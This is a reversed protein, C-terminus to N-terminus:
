PTHAHSLRRMIAGLDHRISPDRGFLWPSLPPAEGSRPAITSQPPKPGRPFGPDNAPDSQVSIPLPGPADFPHSGNTVWVPNTIAYATHPLNESPTASGLGPGLVDMGGALTNVAETIQFPSVEFPRVIPFMSRYGIVEVVFWSDIPQGSADEALAVDFALMLPESALDRSEDIVTQEIIAGNRIVNLRSVGVWPAASLSVALRVSGPTDTAITQGMAGREPDDVYLEVMPGNTAIARGSRLGRVLDLEEIERVDDAGAYVMTRFFGAESNANHSDSTGVAVFRHGANLLNYWDDVVGPFVAQDDDDTVITGAPPLGPPADPPLTEPTRWHHIDRFLKGNVVELLDFDLSFTTQGGPGLFAPGSPSLFIDALGGPLQDMTFTDRKYQGFYGLVPARPHNVQILTEDRGYEGLDRLRAFIEAPPRDSWAVAGRNVQALDYRLPYGNFHGSEITTVELGVSSVMWDALGAEAIAPGFDTIFNHDSSVAWEVGEASVSRVRLDLGMASDHSNSSHLHMDAAIFGTTDVVRRLTHSLTVTRGPVLEVLDVDTDYEPGRSSHVEYIGPRVLLEVVGDRTFGEKEVYRRSFDDAPDDPVLDQVRAREGVKLDYLFNRPERGVESAGYTGVITARAPLAAGRDDRIHVVLRAPSLASLTLSTTRGGLISFDVFDSLPRGSGTVRASYDGPELTGGFSGNEFVDYQSYISRSGDGLRRYVLISADVAASGSLADLVRGGLRGTPVGKIRNIEDLVSGVDGSGVVFHRTVSFAEGPPLSPPAVEYFITVFGGAAFPVFVSTQDVPGGEGYQDRNQWVYNRESPAGVLGYSVGDGRTAVWPAVVGPLAPLSRPVRAADEIGFRLDFGVGPIFAKSSASFAAVDGVPVPLDTGEFGVLEALQAADETPFTLLGTSINTVNLTLELNRAGPRLTYVIEYRLRQESLPERYDQHSGLLLRNLVGVLEVFDGATGTAVVQAASGDAGDDRVEVTQVDVAQLLFTPFLEGLADLGVGGSSDGLGDGRPRNLDVDILGGGYVGLTRSHTPGQIIVRLQDNELRFDGIDGLARPGGVLDARNEVLRARAWVEVQDGACSSSSVALLLVILATSRPRM